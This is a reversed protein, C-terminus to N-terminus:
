WRVVIGSVKKLLDMPAQVQGRSDRTLSVHTVEVDQDSGLGRIAGGKLPQAM